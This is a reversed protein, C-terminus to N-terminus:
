ASLVKLPTAPVFGPHRIKNRVVIETERNVDEYLDYGLVFAPLNEAPTLDQLRAANRIRSSMDTFAKGRVAQLALYLTDNATLAEDDLAGILQRRLDVADDYVPLPMAATMGAVQVLLARRTLSNLADRNDYLRTRTPTLNSPRTANKFSALANLATFGRLFNLGSLADSIAGSKTFMGFMGEAFGRPNQLLTGIQSQFDPLGELMNATGLQAQLEDVIVGAELNADQMVWEPFNDETFTEAFDDIAAEQLNDAASLSQASTAANATPFALEGTEVFSLSIACYGGEARSHRIRYEGDVNVTMRGHWPHVLEGGGATELANLLADRAAMFDDGLVFAEFSVKRAARGLDESYPKDRLPYEHLQTRRGGSLDGSDVFFPVGRFSAAQLQERWSM